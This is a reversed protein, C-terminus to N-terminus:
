EALLRSIDLRDQPRDAFRKAAILDVKGILQVPIGDYTTEVRNAWAEAFPLDGVSMLIDIRNPEIGIQYILDPQTFSAPAIDQLPAGFTALARYVRAANEATPNVWVDLDKTYRPVTYHVVAHAGVILYEVCEDSFASFLDSFDPNHAM